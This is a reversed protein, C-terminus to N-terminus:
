KILLFSIPINPKKDTIENWFFKWIRVHSVITNTVLVTGQFIPHRQHVVVLSSNTNQSSTGQSTTPQDQEQEQVPSEPVMVTRRRSKRSKHTSSSSLDRMEPTEEIRHNSKNGRFGDSALTNLMQLM